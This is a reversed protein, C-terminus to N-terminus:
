AHGLAETETPVRVNVQLERALRIGALLFEGVFVV